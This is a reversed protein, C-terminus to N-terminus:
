EDIIRLRSLERRFKARIVEPDWKLKVCNLFCRPIVIDSKYGWDSTDTDLLYKAELLGIAIDADKIVPDYLRYYPKLNFRECIVKDINIKLSEVGRLCRVVPTSIDGVYAEHADHLLAFVSLTEDQTLHEVLYEVVLSHQLVSYFHSTHGSFRCTQSLSWVIDDLVVMEPKPNLLDFRIGSRTQMWTM